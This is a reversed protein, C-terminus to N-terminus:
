NFKYVGCFIAIIILILFLPQFYKQKEKFIKSFIFPLIIFAILIITKIIVWTPYVATQTLGFRQLLFYGSTLLVLSNFIILTKAIFSNPKFTQVAITWTLVIAATIHMFTYDFYSM